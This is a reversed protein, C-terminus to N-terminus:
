RTEKTPHTKGISCALILTAAMGVALAIYTYLWAPPTLGLITLTLWLIM